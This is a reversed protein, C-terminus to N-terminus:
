SWVLDHQGGEGILQMFSGRGSWCCLRYCSDFWVLGHQGGGRDTAYITVVSLTKLTEYIPNIIFYKHLRLTYTWSLQLFKALVTDWNERKMQKQFSLYNFNSKRFIRPQLTPVSFLFKPHTFPILCHFTTFLIFTSCSQHIFSHNSLDDNSSRSHLLM